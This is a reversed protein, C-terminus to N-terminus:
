GALVRRMDAVAQLTGRVTGTVKSRGTRPRYAVPVEAIRWGARGALLVTELPYGSRRDRVGLALLDERRAARMPGLDHLAAGTRRRLERALYRNAARAHLPWASRGVPRRRGLVLDAEGREVPGTVLPLERLDLSGDADCFAVVPASAAALGAACASGFGRRPEPVVLAGLARAVDASGDRSGNDVVIARAGPPLGALVAPLAGSEDLCPLVVDVSFDVGIDV